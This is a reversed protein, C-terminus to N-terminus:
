ATANIGISWGASFLKPRDPYNRSGCTLTVISKTCSTIGNTAFYPLRLMCSNLPTPPKFNRFMKPVFHSKQLFNQSKQSFFSMKESINQFRELNECIHLFKDFFNSGESKFNEKVGVRGGLNKVLSMYPLRSFSM